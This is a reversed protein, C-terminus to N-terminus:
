ADGMLWELNMVLFLHGTGDTTVHFFKRGLGFTEVWMADPDNQQLEALLQRMARLYLLGIGYRQTTVVQQSM